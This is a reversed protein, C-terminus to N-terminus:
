PSVAKAADRAEKRQWYESAKMPIADPPDHTVDSFPHPRGAPVEIVIEDGFQHLDVGRMRYAFGQMGVCVMDGILDDTLARASPLRLADMQAALARGAKTRKNPSATRDANAKWGAPPPGSFRAAEVWEGRRYIAVAGVEAKFAAIRADAVNWADLYARCLELSRGAALFYQCERTM